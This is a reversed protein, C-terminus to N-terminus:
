FLPFLERLLPPTRLLYAAGPAAGRESGRSEDPGNGHSAPPAVTHPGCWTDATAEPRAQEGRQGVNMNAQWTHIVYAGRALPVALGPRASVASLGTGLRWGGLWEGVWGGVRSWGRSGVSATNVEGGRLAGTGLRHSRASPPPPRGTPYTQDIHGGRQLMAAHAEGVGDRSAAGVGPGRGATITNAHEHARGKDKIITHHSKKAPREPLPAGSAASVRQLCPNGRGDAGEM